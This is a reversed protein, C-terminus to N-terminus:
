RESRILAWGMEPTLALTHEDQLVGTLGGVLRLPTKEDTRLDVYTVPASALGAPLEALSPGQPDRLFGTRQQATALRGEWGDLFRNWVPTRSYAPHAGRRYELDDLYPFLTLIWGTLEAPGSGSQYRFMSRWFDRDVRGEASDVIRDLVPVLVDTWRELGYESFVHARRRVSRWDDATGTLTIEPIGCGCRMEYEFYGQFTDMLVIESVTREVPGTTSFDAVVLDRTKGLYEALRESFAAVVEHWPGPKGLELDRREVAIKQKGDHRVFRGRLEEAHVNVHRAFGQALCFWVADPTLVLPVHSYFADHAAQGLPNADNCSVMRGQGASMAEVPLGLLSAVAKDRELLPMRSHATGREVDSVEFTVM